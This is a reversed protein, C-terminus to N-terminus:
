KEKFEEVEYDGLMCKKFEQTFKAKSVHSIANRLLQWRCLRHHADLFLKRIANKMPLDGDTIVSKPCKGKMVELFNKVAWVYTEESEDCVIASGFAISQLHNNMGSFVM